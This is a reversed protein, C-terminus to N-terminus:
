NNYRLTQKLGKCRIAKKIKGQLKQQFLWAIKRTFNGMIEIQKGTKHSSMIKNKHIEGLIANLHLSILM